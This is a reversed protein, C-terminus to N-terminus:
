SSQDTVFTLSRFALFSSHFHLANPHLFPRVFTPSSPHVPLKDALSPSQFRLMCPSQFDNVSPQDRSFDADAFGPVLVSRLVRYPHAPAYFVNSQHHFAFFIKSSPLPPNKSQVTSKKDLAMSLEAHMLPRTTSTRILSSPKVGHYIFLSYFYQAGIAVHM